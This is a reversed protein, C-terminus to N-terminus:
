SLYPRLIDSFRLLVVELAEDTLPKFYEAKHIPRDVKREGDLLTVIKLDIDGFYSMLTHSPKSGYQIAQGAASYDGGLQSEIQFLVCSLNPCVSKLLTFDVLIRKLMANETYAKCEIGVCFKRDIRVHVDSKATYYFEGQHQLIYERIENHQIRRVYGVADKMPIRYTEKVTDIRDAVGGINEWAILALNKALGEGLAGKAARVIGGYARGEDNDAADEDINGVLLNYANKLQDLRDKVATTVTM